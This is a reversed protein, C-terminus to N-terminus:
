RAESTQEKQRASHSVMHAFNVKKGLYKLQSPKLVNGPLNIVPMSFHANGGPTLTVKQLGCITEGVHYQIIEDTKFM